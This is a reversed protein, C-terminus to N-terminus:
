VDWFYSEDDYIFRNERQYDLRPLTLEIAKYNVIDTFWPLMEELAMLSDDPM